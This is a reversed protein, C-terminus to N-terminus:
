TKHDILIIYSNIMEQKSKVTNNPTISINLIPVLCLAAIALKRESGDERAICARKSPLARYSGKHIQDGINSYVPNATDHIWPDDVLL